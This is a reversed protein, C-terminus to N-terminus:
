DARPKLGAFRPIAGCIESSIRATLPTLLIGNRFHGYALWVNTGEVRRIHPEPAYPRLGTWCKAPEVAALPPFLDAARRHIEKCTEANVETNFGADEETSGAVTFGNSRQLIYTHGRRLMAGLLGPELDFGILHGKIPKVPPMAVPAGRHTVAIQSSWAGAAIVAADHDTSEIRNVPQNEVLAVNRSECARRLARLLDAPDVFADEPYFLGEPRLEVGLGRACQFEARARAQEPDAFHLCGCRAFDIPIGTEARLEEVFSPYMRMAELGLDFWVSPKDFEGGPSLMGAGASSAGSGFRGADAVTVRAGRQALRWAIASGILGAGAIFVRM